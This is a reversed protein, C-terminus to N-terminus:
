KSGGQTKLNAITKDYKKQLNSIHNQLCEEETFFLKNINVWTTGSTTKTKYDVCIGDSDPQDYTSLVRVKRVAGKYWLYRLDGKKIEEMKDEPIPRM